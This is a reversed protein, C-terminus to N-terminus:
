ELRFYDGGSMKARGREQEMLVSEQLIDDRYINVHVLQLLGVEAPM